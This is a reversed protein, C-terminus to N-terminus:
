SKAVEGVSAEIVELTKDIDEMTHASSFGHHPQDHFYVGRDLAARAFDQFMKQDKHSAQYYNKVEDEIGFFMGFRAGLGQVRGKVEARKFIDACGDYLKHALRNIHDYFGESSMEELAAIGSTIPILHGNYTGSHTSKGLPTVEEMIDRRGCFASLPTGGGLCKGLTCMDPTIGFYEQAGGTGTRFGSLVEDYILVVDNDRTLDRLAEMYGEEPMIGGSNYNIPELIVAAIEDKHSKITEELVALNNFPLVIIFEEMGAPMGTSEMIPVIPGEPEPGSLEPWWNFQMYDHFGHFHGQFKVIKDKGAYSRAARIAHMTAETGSNTFRVLDACPILDVVMKALRSHHETEYSCLVGLEVAEMIAERIKPHNHGLISAGHSTCFDIYQNGDLDYVKSGDGKSMYLPHGLMPNVRASSCVGGVLYNNAFQFLEESKKTNM